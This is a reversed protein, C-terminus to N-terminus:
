LRWSHQRPPLVHVANKLPVAGIAQLHRWIKVRLYPPKAPLQHLLALWLIADSEIV